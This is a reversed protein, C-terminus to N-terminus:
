TAIGSGPSPSIDRVLAERVRVQVDEGVYDKHISVPYRAGAVGDCVPGLDM